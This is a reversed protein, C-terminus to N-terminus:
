SPRSPMSAGEPVPALVPESVPPLPGLPFHETEGRAEFAPEVAPEVVASAVTEPAV